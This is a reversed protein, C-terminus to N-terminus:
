GALGCLRSCRLTTGPKVPQLRSELGQPRATATKPKLDDAKSPLSARTMVPLRGFFTESARAPFISRITAVVLVNDTHPIHAHKVADSLGLASRRLTAEILARNLGGSAPSDLVGPADLAAALHGIPDGGPRLLAIRWTSGAKVMYGGCLAPILGSRVLSSKGTGSAGVVSLFRMHRLRRLLDDIQKERGFFLHDENPEFSRLGPFPNFRDTRM